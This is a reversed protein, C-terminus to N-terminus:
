GSPITRHAGRTATSPRVYSLGARKKPTESPTGSSKGRLGINSSSLKASRQNTAGNLLGISREAKREAIDKSWWHVARRGRALTRPPMSADCASKLYEGLQATATTVSTHQDVTSAKVSLLHFSLAEENLRRFSWGQVSDSRDPEEAPAGLRFEVYSHDSGSEIDELVRWGHLATPSRTRSFNVDIVSEIRPLPGQTALSSTWVRWSPQCSNAEKTTPQRAGSRLGLTSTM